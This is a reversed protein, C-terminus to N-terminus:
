ARRAEQWGARVCDHSGPWTSPAFAPQTGPGIYWRGSRWVMRQCDGVGARGTARYSADLEGLVCALVFDGENLVGKIHAHTLTWTATVDPSGHPAGIARMIATIGVNPTWQELPVAGPLTARRHVEAATAPNLDRFAATNIAALQAVAGESTRPFGTPLEATRDTPMPIELPAATPAAAIPQPSAASAPVSAMPRAALEDQAAKTVNHRSAGTTASPTAGTSTITPTAPAHSGTGTGTTLSWAFILLGWLLSLALVLLASVTLWAKARASRLLMTKM